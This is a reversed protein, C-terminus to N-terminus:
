FVMSRYYCKDFTCILIERLNKFARLLTICVYKICRVYVNYLIYTIYIYKMNIPSVLLMKFLILVLACIIVM